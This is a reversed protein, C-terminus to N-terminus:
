DVYIIRAPTVIGREGENGAHAIRNAVPEDTPTTQLCLQHEVWYLWKLPKSSQNNRAGHWGQSPEVAITNLTLHKKRWYRNCASTITVCKEMPNFEGHVRFEAQFKLCGAKLLKVDSTCYTVMEERLNFVVGEAVQEDYWQNFDQMKRESMGKPDYTDRPPMYGEYEQNELTNLLHPFVGKKLETLGFTSPFSSLPFPLFCLSDVFKIPGTTLSLVKAGVCTNQM